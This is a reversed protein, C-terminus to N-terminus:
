GSTKVKEGTDLNTKSSGKELSGGSYKKLMFFLYVVHHNEM